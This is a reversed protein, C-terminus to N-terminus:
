KCEILERYINIHIKAVNPWSTQFVYPKIRDLEHIVQDYNKIVYIVKNALLKPDNSEVSLEPFYTYWEILRPDRTCVIPKFSGLALHLIGSVGILPLDGTYPLVVVDALALLKLQEDRTLFKKIFIVDKNILDLNTLNVPNLNGQLDGAIILVVNDIKTKVIKFTNLLVELGKDRRLFGTYLIIYSNEDVDLRFEQILKSKSHNLYPNILTGHPILRIKEPNVGQIKLEFEQLISHVIVLDCLDSLKKQFKVYENGTSYHRVCHLTVIVNLSNEKLYQILRLFESCSPFISYEHQVHIVDFKIDDKFIEILSDYNKGGVEFTSYFIQINDAKEITLKNVQDTYGGSGSFVTISISHKCVNAISTSLYYTYEAIGCKAPPYTSVYAIKMSGRTILLSASRNLDKEM